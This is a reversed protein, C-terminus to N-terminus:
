TWNIMNSLFEWKSLCGELRRLSWTIWILVMVSWWTFHLLKWHHVDSHKDYRSYSEREVKRDWHELVMDAYALSTLNVRTNQTHLIPKCGNYIFTSSIVGSWWTTDRCSSSECRHMSPSFVDQYNTLSWRLISGDFLVSYSTYCIFMMHLWYIHCSIAM